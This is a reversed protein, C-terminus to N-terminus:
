SQQSLTQNGKLKFIVTNISAKPHHVKRCLNWSRLYQVVGNLLIWITIKGIDRRISFM